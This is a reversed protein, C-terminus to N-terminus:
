LDSCVELFLGEEAIWSAVATCLFAKSAYYVDAGAFAEKFDRARTRFDDEDLVYAPTNVNAVLEPISVGGVSLVGEADKSASGSWLMPMLANVDAPERLWVPSTGAFDGPPVRGM